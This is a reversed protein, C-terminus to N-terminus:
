FDKSSYNGSKTRRQRASFDNLTYSLYLDKRGYGGGSVAPYFYYYELSFLKTKWTYSDTYYDGSGTHTRKDDTPQGFSSICAELLRSYFEPSLKVIIRALTDKLYFLEITKVPIDSIKETTYDILVKEGGEENKTKAGTGLVYRSGLKYKKFGNIEELNKLSQGQLVSISVLFCAVTGAVNLYKKM